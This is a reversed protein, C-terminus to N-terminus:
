ILILNCGETQLKSKIENSHTIVLIQEYCDSLGLLTNFFTEKNDKDMASDCEDLIICSLNQQQNFVNEVALNVIQKEAGSLRKINLEREGKGYLMKLSNKNAIFQVYLPKYINEVFLNTKNEIDKIDKELKWTPYTKTMIESALKYDALSKQLDIIINKANELSTSDEIQQKKILENQNEIAKNYAIINDIERNELELKELEPKYDKLDEVVISDYENQLDLLEKEKNEIIINISVIKEEYLKKTSEIKEMLSKIKFENDNKLNIIHNQIEIKKSEIKNELSTLELQLKNKLLNNEENEKKLFDIRIKEKELDSRQDVLPKLQDSINILDKKVETLKHTCNNGCVPCIGNELSKINEKLINKQTNLAVIHNNVIKLETDNFSTVDQIQIQSLKLKIEISAKVLNTLYEKTSEKYSNVEKECKSPLNAIQTKYLNIERDKEDNLKDISCETKLRLLENQLNIKKDEIQFKQVMLQENKVYQAVKIKLDDILQQSHKEKVFKLEGFNYTKNELSFKEKEKQLLTESLSNINPTIFQNVKETYDLAVLQTLLDRRESDSCETVKNSEGQRYILSYSTLFAPLIKNLEKECDEGSAIDIGNKNLSRVSNVSRGKKNLILKSVYEDTDLNFYLIISAETKSNNIFSEWNGEYKNLLLISIANVISSKGSGNKGNIVNFGKEFEIIKETTLNCWNNLELRKLFLM